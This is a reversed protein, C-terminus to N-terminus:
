SLEGRSATRLAREAALWDELERGPTGGRGLFIEYARVRIADETPRDPAPADDGTEARVPTESTPDAEQARRPRKGGSERTRTM